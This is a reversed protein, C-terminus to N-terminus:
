SHLGYIKYSLNLDWLLLFILFLLFILNNHKFTSIYYNFVYNLTRLANFGFYNFKNLGLDFFKLNKIKYIVNKALYDVLFKYVLEKFLLKYGFYVIILILIIYMLPTFFDLYLFISPILLLNINLWWLFVISFVVLM